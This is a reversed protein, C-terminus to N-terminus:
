YEFITEPTIKISKVEPFQLATKELQARMIKNRCAGGSTFGPIETFQLTLVGKDLVAGLFKFNQRTFETYFGSTRESIELQGKILLNITDYIPTDTKPIEREVFGLSDPSCVDHIQDALGQNPYYLKVKIKPYSENLVKNIEDYRSDTIAQTVQGSKVTVVTKHPILAESLNKGIRDGYERHNSEFAYTFKYCAPCSKSSININEELTLNKGDFVYTPCKKLMWDRAISESKERTYINNLVKFFLPRLLYITTLLLVVIIGTVLIRKKPIFFPKTIKPLKINIM